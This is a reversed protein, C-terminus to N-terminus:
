GWTILETELQAGDVRLIGCSYHLAKRKQGASGPNFLLVPEGDARTKWQILPWHSHGFIICDADPFHSMANAATHNNGSCGSLQIKVGPAAVDGHTLGIRVKEIELLRTAPTTRLVDWNCNNGYVAFTPAIAELDSITQPTNLDGAHLILDVHAFKKFVIPALVTKGGEKIHTDSIIGLTTM